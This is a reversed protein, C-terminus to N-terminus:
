VRGETSGGQVWHDPNSRLPTALHPACKLSGLASFPKLIPGVRSPIASGPILLSFCFLDVICFCFSLPSVSDFVPELGLDMILQSFM